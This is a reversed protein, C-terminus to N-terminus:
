PQARYGGNPSPRTGGMPADAMYGGNPSPGTGGMPADAMYGGNPSPWTGGLIVCLPVIAPWQQHWAQKM